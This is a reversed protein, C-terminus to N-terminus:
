LKLSLNSGVLNLRPNHPIKFCYTNSLEYFKTSLNSWVLNLRYIEASVTEYFRDWSSFSSPNGGSPRGCSTPRPLPRATRSGRRDATCSQFSSVSGVSTFTFLICKLTRNLPGDLYCCYISSTSKMIHLPKIKNRM